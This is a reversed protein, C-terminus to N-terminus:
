PRHGPHDAHQVPWLSRTRALNSGRTITSTWRLHADDRWAGPQHRNIAEARLLQTVTTAGSTLHAGEPLNVHLHRPINDTHKFLQFHDRIMQRKVRELVALATARACLLDHGAALSCLHSFVWLAQLPSAPQGILCLAARLDPLHSVTLPVGHLAFLEVRNLYRPQGHLRSVVFSGRLGKERLTAESFPYDRCGCPCHSFASGYSHLFTAAVGNMGMLRQDHGYAPDAYYKLEKTPLQLQAEHDLSWSGWGPLISSLTQFGDAIPWKTLTSSAWSSPCM